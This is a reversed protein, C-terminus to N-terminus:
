FKRVVRKVTKRGMQETIFSLLTDIDRRGRHMTSSNGGDKFFMLAPFGDVMQFRALIFGIQTNVFYLLLCHSKAKYLLINKISGYM